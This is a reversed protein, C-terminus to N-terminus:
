DNTTRSIFGEVPYVAGGQFGEVRGPYVWVSCIIYADDIVTGVGLRGGFVLGTRVQIEFLFAIFKPEETVADGRVEFRMGFEVVGVLINPDGIIINRYCGISDVTHEGQRM